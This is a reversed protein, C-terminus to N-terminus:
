LAMARGFGSGGSAEVQWQEYAPAEPQVLNRNGMMATGIALYITASM